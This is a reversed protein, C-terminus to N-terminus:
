MKDLNYVITYLQEVNGIEFREIEKGDKISIFTIIYKM